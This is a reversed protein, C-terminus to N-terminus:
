TVVHLAGESTHQHWRQLMRAITQQRHFGNRADDGPTLVVPVGPAPVAEVFAPWSLGEGNHGTTQWLSPLVAAMDRVTLIVSVDAFSLSEMVRRVGRREAFSLFEMSILWRPSAGGRMEDVLDQWVGRSDRQIHADRRNLRLVDQVGRVQRPWIDGPLGLGADALPERNAFVLQQLYTTGTKMAGVHLFVQPRRRMLSM